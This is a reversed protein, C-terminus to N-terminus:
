PVRGHGRKQSLRDKQPGQILFLFFFINSCGDKYPQTPAYM